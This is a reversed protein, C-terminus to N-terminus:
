GKLMAGVRFGSTKNVLELSGVFHPRIQSESYKGLSQSIKITRRIDFFPWLVIPAFQSLIPKMSIVASADAVVLNSWKTTTRSGRVFKRRSLHQSSWINVGYRIRSGIFIWFGLVAHKMSNYSTRLEMSLYTFQRM